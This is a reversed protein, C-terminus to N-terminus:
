GVPGTSDRSRPSPSVDPRKGGQLAAWQQPTVGVSKAARYVLNKAEQYASLADSLSVAAAWMESTVPGIAECIRQADELECAVTRCLYTCFRYRSNRVNNGCGERACLNRTM